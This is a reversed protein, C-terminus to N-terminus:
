RIRSALDEAKVVPQWAPCTALCDTPRSEFRCFGWSRPDITLSQRGPFDKAIPTVFKGDPRPELGHALLHEILRKEDKEWSKCMMCPREETGKVLEIDGRAYGEGGVVHSIGQWGTDSPNKAM